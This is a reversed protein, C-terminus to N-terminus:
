HVLTSSGLYFSYGTTLTRRRKPSSSDAEDHEEPQRQPPVIQHDEEQQQQANVTNTADGGNDDEDDSPLEGDSTTEFGDSANHSTSSPAPKPPNVNSEEVEIVVM